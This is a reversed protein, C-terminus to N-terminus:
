TRRSRAPPSTICVAFIGVIGLFIVIVLGIISRALVPLDHESFLFIQQDFSCQFPDSTGAHHTLGIDFQTLCLNISQFSCFPDLFL